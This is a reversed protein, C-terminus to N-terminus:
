DINGGGDDEDDNVIMLLSNMNQLFFVFVPFFFSYLSFFSHFRSRFIFSCVAKVLHGERNWSVTVQM